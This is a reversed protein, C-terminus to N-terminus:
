HCDWNYLVDDFKKKILDKKQILFSAAGVDGWM